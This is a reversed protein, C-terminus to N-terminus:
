DIIEGGVLANAVKYDCITTLKMNSFDGKVLHVKEGGIVCIKCADTLNEKQEDNLGFYIKKLLNIRFSQPTQGQYLEARNPVADIEVGNKSSVITDTAPVVTDCAGYKIAADINEEIIRMSVFPRVADHTVIVNDDSQGFETEIADIVNFMTSNRDKGGEVIKIRKEDVLNFKELLDQMHLIWNKHVGLYVADFKDCMLFKELSHIIIPKNALPLFQKPMDSINMRKGVGGALIAAFIM